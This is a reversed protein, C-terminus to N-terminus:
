TESYWGDYRPIIPTFRQLRGEEARGNETVNQGEVYSPQDVAGSVDPARM